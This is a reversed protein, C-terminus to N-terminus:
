SGASNRNRYEVDQRILGRFGYFILPVFGLFALAAGLGGLSFVFIPALIMTMATAVGMKKMDTEWSPFAHFLGYLRLVSPGGMVRHFEARTKHLDAAAKDAKAKAADHAELQKKAQTYIDM